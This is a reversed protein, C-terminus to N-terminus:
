PLAGVHAPHIHRRPYTAAFVVALATVGTLAVTAGPPSSLDYSATLGVVAFGVGFAVAALTVTAVRTTILRATAAPYAVRRRGDNLGVSPSSMDRSTGGGEQVLGFLAVDVFALEDLGHGGRQGVGVVEDGAKDVLEVVGVALEGVVMNRWCGLGFAALQEVSQGAVGDAAAEFAVEAHARAKWLQLRTAANRSLAASLSAWRLNVETRAWSRLWDGSRRSQQSLPAIGDPRGIPARSPTRTSRLKFQDGGRDDPGVTLLTPIQRGAEHSSDTRRASSSWWVRSM